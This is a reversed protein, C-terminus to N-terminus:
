TTVASDVSARPRAIASGLEYRVLAHSIANRGAIDANNVSNRPM